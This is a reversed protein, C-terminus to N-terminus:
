HFSWSVLSRQLMESLLHYNFIHDLFERNIRFPLRNHIIVLKKKESYRVMSLNWFGLIDSFRWKRGFDPLENDNENIKLLFQITDHCIPDDKRELTVKKINNQRGSKPRWAPPEQLSIGVM